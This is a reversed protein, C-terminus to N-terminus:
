IEIPQLLRRPLTAVGNAVTGAVLAGLGFGIVGCARVSYGVFMLGAIAGLMLWDIKADKPTITADYM